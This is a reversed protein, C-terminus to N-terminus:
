LQLPKVKKVKELDLSESDRVREGGEKERERERKMGEQRCCHSILCMDEIENKQTTDRGFVFLFIEREGSWYDRKSRSGCSLRM